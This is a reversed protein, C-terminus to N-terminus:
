SRHEFVVYGGVVARDSHLYRRWFGDTVVPVDKGLDDQHFAQGLKPTAGLMSLLNPYVEVLALMATSAGIGIALTLIATIAFWPSKRLQRAAYGLDQM